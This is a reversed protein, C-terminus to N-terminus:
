KAYWAELDASKAGDLFDLLLKGTTSIRASSVRSATDRATHYNPDNRWELWAAPMGQREFGEHDASGYASTDKLYSLAVHRARAHTRLARVLGQPGVGMSRVTYSNGVGVMDVAIMAIREGPYRTKLSFAHARSGFHHDDPAKGPMEEGGFAVFELSPASGRNRMARALELTVAVGSADDNAGPAPPKSDIHGGIVILGPGGGPKRAVVNHTTGGDPLPVDEVTTAYGLSEFRARVFAVARDEALSGGKRPGFAAIARIDAMARRADFGEPAAPPTPTPVPTPTPEVIAATMSPLASAPLPARSTARSVRAAPSASGRTALAAVGLAAVVAALVGLASGAAIYRVVRPRPRRNAVEM